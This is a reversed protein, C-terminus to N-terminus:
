TAQLDNIQYMTHSHSKDSSLQNRLLIVLIAHPLIILMPGEKNSYGNHLYLAGAASGHRTGFDGSFPRNLTVRVLRCGPSTNCTLQLVPYLAVSGVIVQRVPSRNLLWTGAQLRLHM